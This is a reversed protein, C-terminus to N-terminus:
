ATKVLLKGSTKRSTIDKHTQRVGETTLPYEGHVSLRLKSQQVLDFLERTYSQFEDLTHVYQNLVPRVVKLNKPGLKLPSFPPVPGSANGLTVLTGKRRLLEFDIEFTDKGVGDFVAHVGRDIGEGGTIKYIEGVVDRGEGYLVVHDAGAKKALEAKEPTSTTGIVTAGIAKALQVLLLGLGGAAAQVLIFQGPKVEHAEKVFTLATLGQTLVTAADRTSIGEPLKAVKNAKALAYEAFSGGATYAAVRDGVKFGYKAEDVDSGVAAVVGGCENGLIFPLAPKYVGGRFYTDIFNVGAFETKVLVEDSAVKPVDIDRVQIVDIDGQELIQAARMSQPLSQATSM